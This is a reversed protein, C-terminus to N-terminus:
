AETRGRVQDLLFRQEMAAVMHRTSQVYSPLVSVGTVGERIAVEAVEAALPERESLLVIQKGLSHATRVAEGVMKVVGPDAHDYEHGIHTNDRDVGLVLQSLAPVDVMIGAIPRECLKDIQMLMGPTEIKVWVPLLGVERRLAHRVQVLAKDCEEMTRSMPLVVAIREHGKRVLQAVAKCQMAVTEPEHILRKAGRYGLLPNREDHRVGRGEHISHLGTFDHLQYMLPRHDSANEVRDIAEALIETYEEAQKRLHIDRPEMGLWELLCEARLLGVGDSASLLAVDAEYPNTVVSYVRTGTITGALSQPPPLIQAHSGAYVYGHVTDLTVVQGDKLVSAAGHAGYLTPIHSCIAHLGDRQGPHGDTVIVGKAKALWAADDATLKTVVGIEGRKCTKADAKLRVPGSVWGPTLPIGAVVPEIGSRSAAPAYQSKLHVETFWFQNQAYVWCLEIDEQLEEAAAKVLRALRIVDEEQLVQGYKGHRKPTVAGDTGHHAWHQVGQEMSLMLLSPRDVRYVDQAHDGQVHPEGLHRAKITIVSDDHREEDFCRASGSCEPHPVYQVLVPYPSPLLPRNRFVREYLLHGQVPLSYLEKLLRELGIGESVGESLHYRHKGAQARVSVHVESDEPKVVHQKLENLYKALRKGAEAPFPAGHILQRMGTAVPGFHEAGSLSLGKAQRELGKLLVPKTLFDQCVEASVVFGPVVPLGARYLKWLSVAEHGAQATDAEDLCSFWECVKM